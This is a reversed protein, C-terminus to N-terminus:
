LFKQHRYRVLFDTVRHNPAVAEIFAQRSKIPPGGSPCSCDDDWPKHSSILRVCPGRYLEEGTYLKEGTGESMHKM